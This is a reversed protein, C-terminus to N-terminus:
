ATGWEYPIQWTSIADILEKLQPNGIYDSPEFCSFIKNLLIESENGPKGSKILYNASWAIRKAYPSFSAFRVIACYRIFQRYIWAYSDPVITQCLELIKLGTFDFREGDRRLIQGYSEACLICFQLIRVAANTGETKYSKICEEAAREYMAVWSDDPSVARLKSAQPSALIIKADESSWLLLDGQRWAKGAIQIDALCQYYIKCELTTEPDAAVLPSQGDKYFDVGFNEKFKASMVRFLYDHFTENAGPTFGQFGPYNFATDPTLGILRLMNDVAELSTNRGERAMPESAKLQESDGAQPPESGGEDKKRLLAFAAVCAGILLIPNAL